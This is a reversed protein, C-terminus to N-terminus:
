RTEAAKATDGAFRMTWFMARLRRSRAPSKTDIWMAVDRGGIAGNWRAGVVFHLGTNQTPSHLQESAINYTIAVLEVPREDIMATCTEKLQTENAGDNFLTPFNGDVIMVRGSGGDILELADPFGGTGHASFSRPVGISYAGRSVRRFATSDIAPPMCLSAAAVEQAHAAPDRPTSSACAALLSAALLAAAAPAVRAARAPVVLRRVASARRRRIM